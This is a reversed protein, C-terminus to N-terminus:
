QKQIIPVYVCDPLHGPFWTFLAEVEEVSLNRNYLRTEDIVGSFRYEYRNTLPESTGVYYPADGHDALSGTYGTPSNAVEQGDVYLRLEKAVNDVTMVLHHWAGPSFVGSSSAMRTGDSLQIEARFTQDADYYLGSYARVLISYAVNNPTTSPPARDPYVWAAFTHNSATVNELFRSGDITIHDDVGDFKLANGIIGTVRTPGTQDLSLLAGNNGFNSTDFAIDGDGVMDTACLGEDFSWAGVLGDIGDYIYKVRSPLVIPNPTAARDRLGYVTILYNDNVHETTTLTVTHLDAALSAGTVTVHNIDYYDTVVDDNAAEVPENFVVTVQNANSSANVSVIQPPTVDALTTAIIPSSRPGEVSHYNVASVEYHYDRQEVLGMDRYGWGKVTAVQVGDRFVHYLVIGTEPDTAPNWSLEIERDNIPLAAVNHPATPPTTDPTGAPALKLGYADEGRYFMFWTNTEEDLLITAQTVGEFQYTEIPASAQHPASLSITRVEIRSQTVDNIFLAYVDPGVKASGGMGWARVATAGSLVGASNNLDHRSNGWAVGLQRAQLTGNPVYYVFWRGNDQFAIIPFLEDGSGWLAGDQHNLVIGSDSFHTGDVSTALRGDANVRTPAVATNAGYYLAIDGNEDLTVGGSAAGEEGDHTPFWTITPNGSFKTFNVGDRSTAVGITRWTVTEDPILQYGSAGQYYLYYTGNHKVATGAFGGWLQYDWEGLAGAEFIAGYDTWDTQAPIPVNTTHQIPQGFIVRTALVLAILCLFGYLWIKRSYAASFLKARVMKAYTMILMEDAERRSDAKKPRDGIRQAITLYDM